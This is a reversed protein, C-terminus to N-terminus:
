KEKAELVAKNITVPYREKLAALYASFDDEARVREYQARLSKTLADDKAPPQKASVVRYLLYPGSPLATGSYAPLRAADPKFISRVAEPPIKADGQRTIDRPSSWSIDVREGKALRSLKEEGDKHALEAAKDLTLKKRIEDSVTDLPRLAAAKHELVRASILTNPAVEIAETNRKNAIADDSFLAALLKENNLAGATQSAGKSIWDSSRLELKFKEAAPKLSDAQEYVLNSFTEAAEAYKRGAGEKKLMAAIEDRVEPLTKTKARKIDTLKILHFGFDSRVIDSIQNESLAFVADEFPKVMAGRAFFGLDGGNQASGPDQSHQKALKAFDNPTQRLQRALEEAKARAAKIDAESAERAVQVLIHSARREEAQVYRNTHGEYYSKIEEDSVSVQAALADTSLVVYQAKVQEPLEFRKRNADYFSQVADPELKVQQLFSDPRVLAESIERQEQQVALWRELAGKAVFASEGVSGILQQVLLDQRLRAEFGAKTLGQNQLLVEYRASSFAGNEQLSPIASIYDHLQADSVTLRSSASQLLLARQHILSELAAQRLEPTEFLAPNFERGLVARMRDQQDRLAQSLESTSIRSGGVRAADGTGQANRVYSEVGWFAFPLTILILFVQVIRKNGRVADFM